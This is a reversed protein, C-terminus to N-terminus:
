HFLSVYLIVPMVFERLVESKGVEKDKRLARIMLETETKKAEKAKDPVSGDEEILLMENDKSSQKIEGITALLALSECINRAVHRRVMRSPDNAIVAFMYRMIMPTYWRTLFLGDFGVLRVQTANGERTSPLFVKPDNPILSAM